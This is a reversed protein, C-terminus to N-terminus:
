PTEKLATDIMAIYTYMVGFDDVDRATEGADNMADTPERMAEIAARAANRFNARMPSDAHREAQEPSFGDEIEYQRCLARAVREVMESM